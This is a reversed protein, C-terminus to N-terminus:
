LIALARWDRGRWISQPCGGAGSVITIPPRECPPRGVGMKSGGKFGGIWVGRGFRGLKRWWHFCNRTKSNSSEHGRHPTGARALSMRTADADCGTSMRTDDGTARMRLSSTTV